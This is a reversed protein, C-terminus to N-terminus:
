LIDADKVRIENLAEGVANFSISHNKFHELLQAKEKDSAQYQNLINMLQM